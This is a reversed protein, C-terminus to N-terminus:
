NGYETYAVYIVGVLEAFDASGPTWTVSRATVSDAIHPSEDFTGVDLAVDAGAQLLALFVGFTTSAYFIENSGTTKAVLGRIGGTAAVSLADLFGDADGGSESSLLGVDVTKTGGTAEATTVDVFVDHVIAKAPLDWGTDTETTGDGFAIALRRLKMGNLDVTSQISARITIQDGSATSAEEAYGIISDFNPNLSKVGRGNADATIPDGLGINVTAGNVEVIILGGDQVAVSDDAAVTIGDTRPLLAGILYQEPDSAVAAKGNSDLQCIRYDNIAAAAQYPTTRLNSTRTM